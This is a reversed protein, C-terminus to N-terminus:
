LAYSELLGCKSCRWVTVKLEKHGKVTPGWKIGLWSQMQPEGDVWKSQQVSNGHGRDAVWGEDMSIRCNRCNPQHQSM